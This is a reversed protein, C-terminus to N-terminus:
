CDAVSWGVAALLLARSSRASDEAVVVVVFFSFVFVCPRKRGDARGPLEGTDILVYGGERGRLEGGLMGGVLWSVGRFGCYRRTRGWGERRMM